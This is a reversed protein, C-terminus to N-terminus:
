GAPIQEKEEAQPLLPTEPPHSGCPFFAIVFFFARTMSSSCITSLLTL